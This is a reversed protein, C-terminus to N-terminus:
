RLYTQLQPLVVSSFWSDLQALQADAAALGALDVPYGLAACEHLLASAQHLPADLQEVIVIVDAAAEANSMGAYIAPIVPADMM